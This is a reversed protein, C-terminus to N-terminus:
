LTPRGVLKIVEQRYDGVRESPSRAQIVRQLSTQCVEFISGM